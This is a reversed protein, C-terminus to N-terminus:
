TDAGNDALELKAGGALGSVSGSITYTSTACAVGVDVVSSVLNSGTGNSVSCVQGKPQTAVTVNYSGNKAILTPFKFAGNASVSLPNAGNNALSVSEGTALASVTGGVGFQSPGSEKACAGLLLFCSMVAAVGALRRVCKSYIM